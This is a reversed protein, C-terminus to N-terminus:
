PLERNTMNKKKKMGGVVENPEDSIMDWLTEFDSRLNNHIDELSGQLHWLANEADELNTSPVGSAIVRLLSEMCSLRIISHEIKSLEDFYKMVM